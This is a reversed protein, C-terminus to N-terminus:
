LSQRTSTSSASRSTTSRVSRSPSARRRRALGRHDRRLRHLPHRGGGARGQREPHRPRHRREAVHVGGRPVRPLRPLQVARRTARHSERAVRDVDLTTAGPKAAVICEEHMEAVVKGARRMLAIQDRNKRTIVRRDSDLARRDGSWAGSCRTATAPATSWSWSGSSPLVRDDPADPTEYLELRRMVAEETDDDRQVVHGGCVDCTWDSRRHEVHYTAGCQVCVRRGAIRELVIETPVDLDLVVDLPHGTSCRELEEAQVRTRPFGDLVFGDELPGDDAFHEDVVGIVIEDPVLEGTDMYVKCRSGPPTGQAGRRPLRRRDLPARRRLARSLRAAQTGKGAGQKGLLVLRPGPATM